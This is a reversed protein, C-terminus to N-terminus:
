TQDETREADALRKELEAIKAHLTANESALADARSNSILPNPTAAHGWSDSRLLAWVFAVVWGFGGLFLGFWSLANIAEAQPHNRRDAIKKPLSGLWVIMGVAISCLLAIVFWAFYTAGDYM